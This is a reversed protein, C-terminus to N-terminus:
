NNGDNLGVVRKRELQAKLNGLSEDMDSGLLNDIFLNMFNMPYSSRGKFIWNVKTESGSLATTNMNTTAVGEMPKKFRLETEIGEESVNKIEQEGAGAKEGEWTYTFGKSGDTGTYSTKANPDALVWKNYYTQNRLHSVFAFVESKPKNIVVERKVEYDRNVFLAIVLPIAVIVLIVILIKKIIKM